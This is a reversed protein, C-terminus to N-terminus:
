NPSTPVNGVSGIFKNTGTLSTNTNQTVKWFHAHWKRLARILDYTVVMLLAMNCMLFLIMATTHRPSLDGQFIQEVSRNIFQITNMIANM